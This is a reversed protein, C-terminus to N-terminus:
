RAARAATSTGITIQEGDSVLHADGDEDTRYVRAGVARLRALTKPSPHHYDNVAGVSIVAAEPRVAHLFRLTSSYGSGHHAVKLVRAALPAGSGLLWRETPAEADGMFLVSARRYDLRAVVSNANVDSRTRLLPPSPPGILALIAGGGLDIRRGAQAQKVPIHRAELLGVLQAYAPSAHPFDGDMFLRAGVAGLVRGLGGLHDVHRHTLLVLDLPGRSRQAVFAALARGAQPPGGDILVTKGTPSRILAADGQGVSVFDVELAHAWAATSWLLLLAIRRVM